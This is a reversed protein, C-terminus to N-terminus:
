IILTKPHSILQIELKRGSKYYIKCLFQRIVNNRNDTTKLQLCEKKKQQNLAKLVGVYKSQSPTM